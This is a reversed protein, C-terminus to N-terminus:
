FIKWGKKGGKKKEKEAAKQAKKAKERKEELEKRDNHAQKLLDTLKVRDSSASFFSAFGVWISLGHVPHHTNDDATDAM